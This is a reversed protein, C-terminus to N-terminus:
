ETQSKVLLSRLVIMPGLVAKPIELAIAFEAYLILRGTAYRVFGDVRRRTVAMVSNQAHILRRGSAM